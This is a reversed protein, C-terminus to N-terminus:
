KGEKSWQYAKAMATKKKGCGASRVLKFLDRSKIYRYIGAVFKPKGKHNIKHTTYFYRDKSGKIPYYHYGAQNSGFVMRLEPHSNIMKNFISNIDNNNM